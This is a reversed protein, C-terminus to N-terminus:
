VTAAKPFGPDETTNSSDLIDDASKSIVMAGVVPPTVKRLFPTYKNLKVTVPSKSANGNGVGIQDKPNNRLEVKIGPLTNAEKERAGSIMRVEAALETM